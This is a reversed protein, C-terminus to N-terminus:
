RALRRLAGLLAPDRTTLGWEIQDGDQAYTQTANASGVWGADGALVFKEDAASTRTHVGLKALADVLTREHATLRRPDVILTVQAGREARRRMAASVPGAAFSETAVVVPTADSAADIVAAEDRVAADKRTALAGDDGGHGALADRVLAVDRADDDEIAIGGARPWNRDDLFAVGDAVLAKLHFATAASSLLHVEAGAARLARAAGANIREGADNHYPDSQLTVVVHAGRHAAAILAHRMAGDALLYSGFAVDHAQAIRAIAAGSSALSVSM